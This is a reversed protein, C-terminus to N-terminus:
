ALLININLLLKNTIIWALAKAMRINGVELINQFVDWMYSEFDFNSLLWRGHLDKGNRIADILLNVSPQMPKVYTKRWECIHVFEKMMSNEGENDINNSQILKSYKDDLRKDIILELGFSFPIKFLRDFGQIENEIQEQLAEVEDASFTKAFSEILNDTYLRAPKIHQDFRKVIDVVINHLENFRKDDTYIDSLEKSQLDSWENTWEHTRICTECFYETHQDESFKNSGTVDDLSTLGCEWKKTFHVNTMRFRRRIIKNIEATVFDNIYGYM